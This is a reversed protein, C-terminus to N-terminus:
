SEICLCAYVYVNTSASRLTRTVSAHAFIHAHTRTTARCLWNHITNRINNNNNNIGNDLNIYTYSGNREESKSQQAMKWHKCMKQVDVCVNITWACQVMIWEIKSHLLLLFFITRSHQSHHRGGCKLRCIRETHATRPLPKFLSKLTARACKWTSYLLDFNYFGDPEHIHFLKMGMTPPIEIWLQILQFIQPNVKFNEWARVAMRYSTRSSSTTSKGPFTWTANEKVFTPQLPESTM